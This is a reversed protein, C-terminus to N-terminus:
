DAGTAVGRRPGCLDPGTRASGHRDAASVGLWMNCTGLAMRLSMPAPSRPQGLGPPSQHRHSPMRYTAFPPPSVPSGTGDRSLRHGRGGGVAARVVSPPRPRVQSARPARVCVSNPHTDGSGIRHVGVVTSGAPSCVRRVNRDHMERVDEFGSRGYEPARSAASPRMDTFTVSLEASSSQVTPLPHRRGGNPTRGM